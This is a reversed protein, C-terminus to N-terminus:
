NNKKKKYKVLAVVIGVIILIAVVVGVIILIMKLMNSKERCEVEVCKSSDTIEDFTAECEDESM